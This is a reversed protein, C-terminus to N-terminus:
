GDGDMACRKTEKDRALGEVSVAQNIISFGDPKFLKGFLSSNGVRSKIPKEMM